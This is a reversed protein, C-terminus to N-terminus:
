LNTAIKAAKFNLKVSTEGVNVYDTDGANKLLVDLYYKGVWKKTVAHPIVIRYTNEGILEMPSGTELLRAAYVEQDQENYVGVKIDKDSVDESFRILVSTTDGQRM